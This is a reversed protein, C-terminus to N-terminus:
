IALKNSISHLQTPLVSIEFSFTFTGQYATVQAKGTTTKIQM